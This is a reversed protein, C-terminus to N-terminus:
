PGGRGERPWADRIAEGLEDLSPGLPSRRRWVLGITRGPPPKRFRREVLEGRRNEVPLAVEPLLTVGAGASVVQTLTSLSTARFRAEEARVRSCLALAQDRLCHGDELLYVTAGDLEDLSATRKRRALPHGPPAVLVFPDEM